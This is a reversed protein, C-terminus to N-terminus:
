DESTEKLRLGDLSCWSLLEKVEALVLVRHVTEARLTCRQALLFGPGFRRRVSLPPTVLARGPFWCARVPNSGPELGARRLDERPGPHDRVSPPVQF